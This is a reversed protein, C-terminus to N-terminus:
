HASKQFFVNASKKQTEICRYPRIQKKKLTNQKSFMPAEQPPWSLWTSKSTQQSTKENKNEGGLSGCRENHAQYKFSAGYEQYINEACKNKMNSTMCKAQRMKMCPSKSTM